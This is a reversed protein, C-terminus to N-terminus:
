MISLFLLMLMQINTHALITTAQLSLYSIPPHPPPHSVLPLQVPFLHLSVRIYGTSQTETQSATVDSCGCQVSVTDTIQGQQLLVLSLLLKLSLLIKDWLQSHPGKQWPLGLPLLRHGQSDSLLSVQTSVRLESERTWDSIGAGPM